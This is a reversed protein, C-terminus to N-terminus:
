DSVTKSTRIKRFSRDAGTTLTEHRDMAKKLWSPMPTDFEWGSLPEVDLIESDDSIEIRDNESPGAYEDFSVNFTKAQITNCFFSILWIQVSNVFRTYVISAKKTDSTITEGERTRKRQDELLQEGVHENENSYMTYTKERRSSSIQM